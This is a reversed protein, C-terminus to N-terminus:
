KKMKAELFTECKLPDLTWKNTKRTTWLKQLAREWHKNRILGNKGTLRRCQWSKREFVTILFVLTYIVKAKTELPGDKSKIIKGM